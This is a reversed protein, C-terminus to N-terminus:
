PRDEASRELEAMACDLQAVDRWGDSKGALGLGAWASAAERAHWCMGARDHSAEAVGYANTARQVPWFLFVALALAAAM